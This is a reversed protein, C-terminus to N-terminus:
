SSLLQGIEIKFVEFAQTIDEVQISLNELQNNRANTELLECLQALNKAGVNKSSGKLSHATRRIIDSDDTVESHSREAIESLEQIKIVSDSFYTELLMGIDDGMILKLEDIIQLDLAASM